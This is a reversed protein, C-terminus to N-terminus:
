KGDVKNVLFRGIMEELVMASQTDDIYDGDALYEDEGGSTIGIYKEGLLGATLIAASSDTTFLSYKKDVSM